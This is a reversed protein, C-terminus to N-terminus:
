TRKDTQDNARALAQNGSETISYWARGEFAGVQPETDDPPSNTISVFGRRNMENLAMSVAMHDTPELRGIERELGGLLASIGAVSEGSELEQKLLRLVQLEIGLPEM